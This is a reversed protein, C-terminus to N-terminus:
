LLPHLQLAEVENVASLTPLMTNFSAAKTYRHAYSAGPAWGIEKNCREKEQSQELTALTAFSRADKLRYKLKEDSFNALTMIRVLHRNLKTSTMHRPHGNADRALSVQHSPFGRQAIDPFLWISASNDANPGAIAIGCLKAIQVYENLKRLPCAKLNQTSQLCLHHPSDRIKRDVVMLHLNQQGAANVSLATHAAQAKCLEGPRDGQKMEALFFVIFLACLFATQLNNAHMSSVLLYDNADLLETIDEQNLQPASRAVTGAQDYRLQAKAMADKVLTSHLASKLSPPSDAHSALKRFETIWTSPALSPLCHPAGSCQPHYCFISHVVKANRNRHSVYQLIDQPTINSLPQQAFRRLKDLAVAQDKRYSKAAGRPGALSSM